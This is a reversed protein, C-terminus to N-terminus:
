REFRVGRCYNYVRAVSVANSECNVNKKEVIM